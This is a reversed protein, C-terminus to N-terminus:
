IDWHLAYTFHNGVDRYMCPYGSSYEEITKGDGAFLAVHGSKWLIDAISAQNVALKHPAANCQEGSTRPISIGAQSYCWQTLGSCDLGQFPTTGGWVYPTKADVQSQAAQIIKKRADSCNALNVTQTWVGSGGTAALGINGTRIVQTILNFYVLSSNQRLILQEKSGVERYRKIGIIKETNKFNPVIYDKYFRDSAKKTNEDTNTTLKKLFDLTSKYETELEYWIFELQESLNDMWDNGARKKMNTARSYTWQCLGFAIGKDIKDTRFNSSQKINGCIGCIASNSLDKKMFFKVATRAKADLRSLDWDGEVYNSALGSQGTGAEWFAQFLDTYNVFSLKINTPKTVPKYEKIKKNAEYVTQLYAAERLIADKRTNAKEFLSGSIGGTGSIGSTQFQSWDISGYGAIELSNKRYQKEKIESDLSGGVGITYVVNDKYDTVIQIDKLTLDKFIASRMGQFVNSAIFLVLDGKQPTYDKSASIGSENSLINILDGLIINLKGNHKLLSYAIDTLADKEDFAKGLIGVEKACECLYSSRFQTAADQLTHTKAWDLRTTGKYSLAKKVFEDCKDVQSVVQGNDYQTLNFRNIISKVNNYYTAQGNGGLYGSAVFADYYQDLTQANRAQDSKGLVTMTYYGECCADWSAFSKGPGIGLINNRGDTAAKSTGYGSELCAQAIAFSVIKFGHQKAYKTFSPAVTKVFEENTM